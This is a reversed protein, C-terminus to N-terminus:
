SAARLVFRIITEVDTGPLEDSEGSVGNVALGEADGDPLFTLSVEYRGISWEAQVGGEPTPYLRPRPVDASALESLIERARRTADPALAEGEGDLWGRRLEELEGLRRDIDQVTESPHADDAPDVDYIADLRILGRVADFVGLGQIRVPPGGGNPEMAAKLPEFTLEDVPAQIPHTPGSRLRIMCSMKHSDIEWVWATDQIEEQFTSREKLILQRRIERTYNPGVTANGRRLEISEEPRLTQGFGNFLVLASRPFDPPLADGAAIAAIADEIIDRAKTFEDDLPLVGPYLRELVPVVSGREITQIQLQLRETFGGPLRQRSPHDVRFLEKAVAIVLERYAVLETLAEIPMGDGEFRGGTLRLRAFTDDPDAVADTHGALGDGISITL